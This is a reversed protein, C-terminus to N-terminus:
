AEKEKEKETYIDLGLLPIKFIARRIMSKRWKGAV